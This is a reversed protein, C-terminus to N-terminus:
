GKGYGPANPEMGNWWIGGFIKLEYEVKLSKDGQSAGSSVKAIKVSKLIDTVTPQDENAYSVSITFPPLTTLSRGLKKAYAVLKGHEERSLTVKGEASYNGSGYGYPNSGKGYVPEFEKSESYEIDTFGVIEGYPLVVSIDEWSYSKGNIV